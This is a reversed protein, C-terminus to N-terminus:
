ELELWIVLLSSNSGWVEMPSFKKWQLRESQRRESPLIGRLKRCTKEHSSPKNPNKKTSILIGTHLHIVSWKDMWRSFHIKPQKQSNHFLQMLMKLTCTQTYAKLEKSDIGLLMISSWISSWLLINLKTHFWWVTKWLTWIM